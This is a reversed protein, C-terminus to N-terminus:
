WNEAKRIAANMLPKVGSSVAAKVCAISLLPLTTSRLFNVPFFISLCEVPPTPSLVVRIIAAIAAERPIFTGIIEPRPRPCM